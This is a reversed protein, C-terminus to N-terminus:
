AAIVILFGMINMKTFYFNLLAFYQERSQYSCWLPCRCVDGDCGPLLYALESSGWARGDSTLQSDPLWQADADEQDGGVLPWQGEGADRWMMSM